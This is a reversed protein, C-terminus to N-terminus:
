LSRITIQDFSWITLDVMPLVSGMSIGLCPPIAPLGCLPPTNCEPQKDELSPHAEFAGKLFPGLRCKGLCPAVSHRPRGTERHVIAEGSIVLEERLRLNM